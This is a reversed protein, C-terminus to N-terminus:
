QLSMIQCSESHFVLAAIHKRVSANFSIAAEYDLDGNTSGSLDSEQIYDVGGALGVYWRPWVEQAHASHSVIAFFLAATTATLLSRM